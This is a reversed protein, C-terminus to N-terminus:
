GAKRMSLKFELMQIESGLSDREIQTHTEKDVLKILDKKRIRDVKDRRKKLADLKKIVKEGHEGSKVIDSFEQHIAIFESGMHMYEDAEHKAKEAVKSLRKFEKKMAALALEEGSKM